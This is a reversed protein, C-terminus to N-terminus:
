KPRAAQWALGSVSVDSQLRVGVGGPGRELVTWVFAPTLERELYTRAKNGWKPLASEAMRKTLRAAVAEDTAPRLARRDRLADERLLALGRLYEVAAKLRARVTVGGVSVDGDGFHIAKGNPERRRRDRTPTAAEGLRSSRVDRTLSLVQRSLNMPDAIMAVLPVDCSGDPDFDAEHVHCVRRLADTRMATWEASADPECVLLAIVGDHQGILVGRGKKEFGAGALRQAIYHWAGRRKVMVRARRQVVIRNRPYYPDTHEPEATIGFAFDAPCDIFWDFPLGIPVTANM